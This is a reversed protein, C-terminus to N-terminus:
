LGATQLSNSIFDSIAPPIPILSGVEKIASQQFTAVANASVLLNTISENAALTNQTNTNIIDRMSSAENSIKIRVEDRILTALGAVDEQQQATLATGAAIGAKTRYSSDAKEYVKSWREDLMNFASQEWAEIMEIGNKGLTSIGVSVQKNVDIAAQPISSCGTVLYLLVTILALNRINM